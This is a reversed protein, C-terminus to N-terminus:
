KRFYPKMIWGSGREMCRGELFRYVREPTVEGGYFPNEPFTNKYKVIRVKRRQDYLEVDAMVDEKWLVTFKYDDMKAETKRM